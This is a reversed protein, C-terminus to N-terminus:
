KCVKNTAEGKIQVGQYERSSIRVIMKNRFEKIRVGQCERCGIGVIKQNEIEGNM